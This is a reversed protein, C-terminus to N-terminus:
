AFFESFLKPLEGRQYATWLVNHLAHGLLPRVEGKAIKAIAVAALLDEQNLESYYLRIKPRKTAQQQESLSKLVPLFHKKTLPYTANVSVTADWGNALGACLAPIGGASAGFSVVRRYQLKSVIEDLSQLLSPFDEAIEPIGGSYHKRAPDWLFLLDTERANIHSLFTWMPMMLRFLHGAFGVILTKNKTDTNRSTYLRICQSIRQRDWSQKAALPVVNETLFAQASLFRQRHPRALDSPSLSIDALPALEGPTLETYFSELLANFARETDCGLLTEKM